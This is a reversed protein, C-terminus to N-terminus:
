QGQKMDEWLQRLLTLSQEVLEEKDEEIYKELNKIFEFLEYDHKQIFVSPKVEKILKKRKSSFMKSSFNFRVSSMKEFCVLAFPKPIERDPSGAANIM